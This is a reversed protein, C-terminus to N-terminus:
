LEDLMKAANIWSRRSAEDLLKIKDQENLMRFKKSQQENLLVSGSPLRGNILHQDKGFHIVKERVEQKESIKRLRYNEEMYYRRHHELDDKKFISFSEIYHFPRKPIIMFGISLAKKQTIYMSSMVQRITTYNSYGFIIEALEQRTLGKALYDCEANILLADIIRTSISKYRM